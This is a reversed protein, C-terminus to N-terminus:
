PRCAQRLAHHESVEVEHGVDLLEQVTLVLCRDNPGIIHQECVQRQEVDVSHVDQHIAGYTSAASLHHHTPEVHVLKQAEHRAM